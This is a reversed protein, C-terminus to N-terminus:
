FRYSAGIRGIGKYGYGLELFGSLAGGVEVAIPTFQFTWYSFSSRESKGTADNSAEETVFSKGFGALGYLNVWGNDTYFGWLEPAVTLVTRRYAGIKMRLNNTPSTPITLDASEREYGATVGIAMIKNVPPFFMYDVFLSGRRTVSNVYVTETNSFGFVKANVWSSMQKSTEKMDTDYGEGIDNMFQEHPYYGYSLRVEQRNEMFPQASASHVLFLFLIALSLKYYRQMM